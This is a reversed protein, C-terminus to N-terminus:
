APHDTSATAGGARVPGTSQRVVLRTPLCVASPVGREGQAARVLASGALAGKRAVDQHVTTLAPHLSAALPSDDFGIVSLDAPVRAGAGSAALMVGHALVDSYCLVATVDPYERVLLEGARRGEAVSSRDVEVTTVAPEVLGERWGRSRERVVYLGDPLGPVTPLVLAVRRHGLAALHAAAARAGDRDSVNVSPVDDRPDQDVLVLPIRRRELWAQAGLGTDSGLVLAADLPVDRAAVRDATGAPPLLTLALGAASLEGAVAALFGTAVEDVLALHPAHTLVVGVAGSRGRALARAAPDPGVYGLEEAAALIRHRLEASLQDPRSFANSVTMRSVGVHDAISQLTVRPM